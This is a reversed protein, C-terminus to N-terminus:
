VATCSPNYYKVLPIECIAHHTVSILLMLILVMVLYKLFYTVFLSLAFSAGDYVTRATRGVNRSLAAAKQYWQMMRKISKSGTRLNEKVVGPTNTPRLSEGIIKEFYREREDDKSVKVIKRRMRSVVSKSRSLGRSRTRLSFIPASNKHFIRKSVVRLKSPEDNEEVTAGEDAPENRQMRRKKSRGRKEAGERRETTEQDETKEQRMSHKRGKRPEAQEAALDENGSIKEAHDAQHASTENDLLPLFRNSTNMKILLKRGKSSKTQKASLDQNGSMKEACDAQHASTANETPLLSRHPPTKDILTNPIEVGISMQAVNDEERHLSFM